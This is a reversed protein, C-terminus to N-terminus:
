NKGEEKDAGDGDKKPLLLTEKKLVQEMWEQFTRLLSPNGDHADLFDNYDLKAGPTGALICAYMYNYQDSLTALSWMKGTIQEAMIRARVCHKMTYTVGNITVTATETM